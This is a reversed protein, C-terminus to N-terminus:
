GIIYMLTVVVQAVSEMIRMCFIRAITTFPFCTSRAVVISVSPSTEPTPWQSEGYTVLLGKNACFIRNCMSPHLSTAKM